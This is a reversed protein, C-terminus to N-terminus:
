WARALLADAYLHGYLDGTESPVLKVPNGDAFDYCAVHTRCFEAAEILGASADPRLEADSQIYEPEPVTDLAANILPLLHKADSRLPEHHIPWRNFIAGENEMAMNSALMQCRQLVHTLVDRHKTLRAIHKLAGLLTPEADTQTVAPGKIKDYVETMELEVDREM